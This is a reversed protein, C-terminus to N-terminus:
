AIASAATTLGFTIAIFFAIGKRDIKLADNVM